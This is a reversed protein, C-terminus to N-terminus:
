CVASHPHSQGLAEVDSLSWIKCKNNHVKGVLVSSDHPKEFPQLPFAVVNTLQVCHHSIDILNNLKDISAFVIKIGAQSIVHQAADHGVNDYM